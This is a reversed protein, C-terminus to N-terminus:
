GWFDCAPDILHSLVCALWGKGKANQAAPDKKVCVQKAGNWGGKFDCKTAAVAITRLPINLVFLNETIEYARVDAAPM